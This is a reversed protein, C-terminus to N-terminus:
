SPFHQVQDSYGERPPVYLAEAGPKGPLTKLVSEWVGLPAILNILLSLHKSCTFSHLRLTWHRKWLCQGWCYPLSVM